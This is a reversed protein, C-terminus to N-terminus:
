PRHLILRALLANVCVVIAGAYVVDSFFHAGQMVRVMGVSAGLLIGFLMAQRYYRPPLLFAYATLWFTVAAHGSVFSCNHSCADSIWLPPSYHLMGGFEVIEDPRARGWNPKLLTEVILGPGIILSAILFGVKRSTMEVLPQGGRMLSPAFTIAAFIVTSVVIIRPVLRRVFETFANQGAAFGFQPDFFLGSVKFDVAPTVTVLALLLLLWGWPHWFRRWSTAVAADM